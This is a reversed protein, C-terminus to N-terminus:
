DYMEGFPNNSKPVLIYFDHDLITEKDEDFYECYETLEKDIEKLQEKSAKFAVINEPMNHPLKDKTCRIFMKGGHMGNGCFPAVPDPQRTNMGLVIIKGGAQYEGLFSGAAGGIVIVPIKDQYSKMHIGTRYGSNGKIFIKGGRMAYGTGDGANGHVVITGDNMTDGTAEQCNGNVTISSGDLYYGLGNGPTGNITFSKGKSGSAIFRQGFCEDITIQKDTTERVMDNLDKFFMTKAAIRM